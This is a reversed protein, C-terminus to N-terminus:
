IVDTEDFNILHVPFKRKKQTIQYSIVGIRPTLALFLQDRFVQRAGQEVEEGDSFVSEEYNSTYAVLAKSDDELIKLHSETRNLWAGM